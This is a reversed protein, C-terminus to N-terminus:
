DELPKLRKFIAVAALGQGSQGRWLVQILEWGKEGLDELAQDFLVMRKTWDRRESGDEAKVVGLTPEWIPRSFGMKTPGMVLTKYEWKQLEDM